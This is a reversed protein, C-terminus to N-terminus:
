ILDQKLRLVAVTSIYCSPSAFPASVMHQCEAGHSCELWIIAEFDRSRNLRGLPAVCISRLPNKTGLNGFNSAFNAFCTFFFNLAFDRNGAHSM